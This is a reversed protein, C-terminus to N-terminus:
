AYPIIYVGPGLMFPVGSPYLYKLYEKDGESLVTNIPCPAATSDTEGPDVPYYMISKKDDFQKVGPMRLPTYSRRICNLCLWDRGRVLMEAEKREVESEPHRYLHSFGLAHGFQHLITGQKREPSLSALNLTMTPELSDNRRPWFGVHSKSIGSTTFLVRIPTTGIEIESLEFRIPMEISHYHKRVVTRVLEREEDSGNIFRVLVYVKLRPSIYESKPPASPPASPLPEPRLASRQDHYLSRSRASESFCFSAANFGGFLGLMVFATLWLCAKAILAIDDGFNDFTFFFVTSFIGATVFWCLFTIQALKWVRAAHPDEFM